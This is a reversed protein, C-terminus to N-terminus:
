ADEAELSLGWSELCRKVEAITARGCLHSSRLQGETLQALDGLCTVGLTESLANRARLTLELSRLPTSWVANMLEEESPDWNTPPEIIDAGDEESESDPDPTPRAAALREMLVRIHAAVPVDHGAEEHAALHAAVDDLCTLIQDEETSHLKCCFCSWEEDRTQVLYVDGDSFRCYSM